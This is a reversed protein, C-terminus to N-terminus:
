KGEIWTIILIKQNFVGKTFARVKEKRFSEAEEWGTQELFLGLRCYDDSTLVTIEKKVIIKREEM